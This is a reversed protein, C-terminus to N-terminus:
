HPSTAEPKLGDNSFCDPSATSGPQWGELYYTKQLVPSAKVIVVEISNAQGDGDARMVPSEEGRYNVSWVKGRYKVVAFSAQIGASLENDAKVGGFVKSVQGFNKPIVIEQSNAM